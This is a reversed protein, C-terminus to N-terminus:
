QHTGHLTLNIQKILNIRAHPDKISYHLFHVSLAPLEKKLIEMAALSNKQKESESLKDAKTFIVLMPKEQSEAWKAFAIDEEAFERRSDILFLILCLSSRSKFYRDITGAWEARVESPVKAYGYGPLDVLAIQDDITYFNISQTKGPVSSTRALDSKTLHNILSSKGVNSRGVCAIEPMPKGQLTLLKPFDKPIYATAALHTREFLIKKM